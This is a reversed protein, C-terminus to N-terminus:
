CCYPYYYQISFTYSADTVCLEEEEEKNDGINVMPNMIHPSLRDLFASFADIRGTHVEMDGRGNIGDQM